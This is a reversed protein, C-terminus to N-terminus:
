KLYTALWEHVQQYYFRGNEANLIWHNEDPFVILKSPVKLRQLTAYNELSNNIPVRFDREGITILIPTKFNAAMRIPNQETFTKTKEWPLGGNMVERNYIGDSTGWQSESNVLGAHAVICKYHSTTAQMWNALHGGYSAGGVAQLNENIFSYHKIAYAAAENIEDAPGKFPDFQIDQAFKEGFGTSGTYNTLVLIYGPKALLHYNWRYGWNDKFASAPGGHMLVFLPYKKTPDFGAPRVLINHIQKGRSSSFWFEEIEPLDLTSLAAKNFESIPSAKGAKDIRVVEAPSSADEYLSTIVTGDDSASVATYSGKNGLSLLRLKKTSHNYQYIWDHGRDDVSLVLGNQTLVYNNIPRDLSAAIASKNKLSPWDCRVLKGLDYVKYTNYGSEIYYISKGDASFRPNSVNQKADQLVLRADSQTLDVQYFSYHAEQSAQVHGDTTASFVVGKSDPTWTYSGLNFGVQNVLQVKSMLNQAHTSDIHQVLLHSQKEDRWRDFDRIPFGTYVRAKYKLKKKEEAMKKSQTDTFAGPYVSSTFLILSGDPSWQPAGAGTSINTFRQAEGGKEINIIYIQGVEDGDRKAVFAIKKSDPSWQYGSESAKNATIKYPKARGDTPALWLDSQVEKEDYAPEQMAFVVWRGDPSTQPASVRKMAWLSEHTIPSLNQAEITAPVSICFVFLYSFLHKMSTKPKITLPVLNILFSNHLKPLM